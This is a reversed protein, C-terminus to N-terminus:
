KDEKIYSEKITKGTKTPTIVSTKTYKYSGSTPIIVDTITKVGTAANLSFTTTVVADDTTVTIVKGGSTGDAIVTEKNLLGYKALFVHDALSDIEDGHKKVIRADAVYGAETTTDNNAINADAADGSPIKPKDALDNYSGTSAVRALEEKPPRKEILNKLAQDNELLQQFYGNIFSALVPDTELIENVNQINLAPDSPIVFKAM